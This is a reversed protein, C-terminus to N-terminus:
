RRMTTSRRWAAKGRKIVSVTGRRSRSRAYTTAMSVVARALIRPSPALSSGPRASARVSVAGSVAGFILEAVERRIAPSPPVAPGVGRLYGGLMDIHRRLLRRLPATEETQFKLLGNVQHFIRMLDKNSSLFEIHAEVIRHLLDEGTRGQSARHDVLQGLQLFGSEVVAHILDEKSRFYQYLTGKAIGADNTLDEVRSLYLGKESFLRRGALLLESRTMRKRRERHSETIAEGVMASFM